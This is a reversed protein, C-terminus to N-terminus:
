LWRRARSQLRVYEGGFVRELKAEEYPIFLRDIIFFFALPSLLYIPSGTFFAVSALIPMIGLYMPNRTYRYPVETVLATPEGTPIPTTKKRFFHLWAWFLLALGPLAFAAGLEPSSIDLPLPLLSDVGKCLGLALLAYIPPPIHLLKNM